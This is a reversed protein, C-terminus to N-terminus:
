PPNTLQELEGSCVLDSSFDSGRQCDDLGCCAHCVSTGLRLNWAAAALADSCFDGGFACSNDTLGFCYVLCPLLPCSVGGTQTRNPPPSSSNGTPNKTCYWYPPNVTKDVVCTGNATCATKNRCCPPAGGITTVGCGPPDKPSCFGAQNLELG